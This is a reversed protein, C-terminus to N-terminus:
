STIGYMKVVGLDIYKLGYLVYPARGLGLLQSQVYMKVVRVGVILENMTKVREDTATGTKRRITQFYRCACVYGGCLWSNKKKKQCGTLSSRM